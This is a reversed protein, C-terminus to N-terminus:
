TGCNQTNLWVSCSTLVTFMNM